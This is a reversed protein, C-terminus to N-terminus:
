EACNLMIAQVIEPYVWECTNRNILGFREGNGTFLHNDWWCCTIGRSRAFALYYAAFNVRSQLNGGKDLAGYEDLMVPIGNAIYKEYLLNMFWAIDNLKDDMTDEFATDLKNDKNLAFEYPRYAHAEVIIRNDASDEPLRFNQSTCGEPSGDYGPVSLYRTANHGGSSRITDVFLQNLQNICEAAEQFLPDGEDFWWELSTGVLRPENLSELILHDDCDKFAEAIQSWIAKLYRMSQDLHKEDPYFYRVDNDHHVNIIVFMNGALAYDAVERVRSMWQPDITYNEDTLHNHWSVPIRITNFGADQVAQILQPTTRTGVWSTELSDGPVYTDQHWTADFTNGLNWGTKMEKLFRMADNDPIRRSSISRYNPIIIEDASAAPHPVITSFATFVLLLALLHAAISKM